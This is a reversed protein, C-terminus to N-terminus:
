SYLQGDVPTSVEGSSISCREIGTKPDVSGNIVGWQTPLLGADGEEPPPHCAASILASCSGAMPIEPHFKRFSLVIPLAILLLSVSLAFIIALPSYNLIWGSSNTDNCHLWDCADITLNGTNDFGYPVIDV